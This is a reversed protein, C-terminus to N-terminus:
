NVSDKGPLGREGQIGQPGTSVPAALIKTKIPPWHKIVPRDMIWQFYNCYFKSSVRLEADGPAISEPMVRERGVFLTNFYTTWSDIITIKEQSDSITQSVFITSCNRGTSIMDWQVQYKGGQVVEAPVTRGHNIVYATRSDFAQFVVPAVLGLAVACAMINCLLRRGHFFKKLATVM